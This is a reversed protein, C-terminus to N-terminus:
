CEIFNKLLKLGNTQSKEPHFQTGFINNNQYSALFLKGYRTIACDKLSLNEHSMCYSHVFYFEVPNPLGNYLIGESEIEVSNFGIHPLRIKINENNSILDVKQPIFNFGKSYGEETSSSALLQFGLCIGLINKNRILVHDSIADFLGSERLNKIAYSFSGVGPLILSDYKTVESPNSIM